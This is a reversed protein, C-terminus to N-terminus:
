ARSFAHRALNRIGTRDRAWVAGPLMTLANIRSSVHHSAANAARHWGHCRMRAAEGAFFRKEEVFRSGDAARWASVSTRHRRYQFCVTPDVLLREGRIVLDLVLALDQVVHLGERFGAARAAQTRWTLSPFYLWNGRLLSLALEEGGLLTPGAVRPAYLARKASDVLGSTPAGDVDIVQVGPQIISADPFALHAARVTRVYDPLMVDDAGLIVVLESDALDICQQFNRNIGLNRANHRYRVRSDGLSALWMETGDNGPSDDVVTLRWDPDSQGLVSLVTSRLLDLRNFYPVLIEISSM